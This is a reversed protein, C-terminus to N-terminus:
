EINHYDESNGFLVMDGQVATFITNSERPEYYAAFFIAMTLILIIVIKIWIQKLAIQKTKKDM